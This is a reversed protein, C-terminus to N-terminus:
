PAHQREDASERGDPLTFHFTAGRGPASVVWIRGGHREIIRKCVALGIGTGPYDAATHLRQFIVFIKEADKPEIGIGRDTVTIEWAAEQRAAGVHIDPAATGRFKIANGVLNQLLLEMQMADACVTPLADVRISAGTEDIAAKLNKLVQPMVDDLATPAFKGGRRSVRSFALLDDILRQMRLAGDVAYEIFEDADADLRGRYRRALLQTYSAVMRLPEQLDHSAVYAFQELDANSRALEQAQQALRRNTEDLEATREVVRRELEDHAKQLAGEAARRAAVDRLIGRTVWFGIALTLALATAALALLLGRTTRYQDVATRGAADMLEGQFKVLSGLSDQYLALGPRLENQLYARAEAQRGEEVLRTLAEQGAVYKARADRVAMFLERGRPQTLLKDLRDVNAAIRRRAELMTQKDADRDQRNETLMMNRLAIAIGNSDALIDNVIVTKPWKDAVVQNMAESFEGLRVIGIGAIALMLAAICGFAAGLRLGIHLHNIM